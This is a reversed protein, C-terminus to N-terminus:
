WGERYSFTRRPILKRHKKMKGWGKLHGCPSAERMKEKRLHWSTGFVDDLLEVGVKEVVEDKKEEPREIDETVTFDAEPNDELCPQLDEAEKRKEGSERMVNRNAEIEETSEKSDSDEKSGAGNGTSEEEEKHVELTLHRKQDKLTTSEVAGPYTEAVVEVHIM